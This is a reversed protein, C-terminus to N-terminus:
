ILFFIHYHNGFFLLWAISSQIINNPTVANECSDRHHWELIANELISIILM